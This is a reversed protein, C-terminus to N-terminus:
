GYIFIHSNSRLYINRVAFTASKRFNKAYESMSINIICSCLIEDIKQGMVTFAM